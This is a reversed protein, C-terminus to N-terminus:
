LRALLQAIEANRDMQGPVGYPSIRRAVQQRAVSGDLLQHTEGIM